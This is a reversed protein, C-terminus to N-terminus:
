RDTEERRPGSPLRGVRGLLETDSGPPRAGWPPPEPATPGRSRPNDLRAGRLPLPLIPRRFIDAAAGGDRLQDLTPPLTMEPSIRPKTKILARPPTLTDHISAQYSTNKNISIPTYNTPAPSYTHQSGPYGQVPSNPLDTENAHASISTNLVVITQKRNLRPDSCQALV